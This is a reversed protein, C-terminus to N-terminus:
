LKVTRSTLLEFQPRLLDIDRGPPELLSDVEKGKGVEQAQGCEREGDEFGAVPAHTIKMQM